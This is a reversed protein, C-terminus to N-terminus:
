ITHIGERTIIQFLCFLSTVGYSFPALKEQVRPAVWITSKAMENYATDPTGTSSRARRELASLYAKSSGQVTRCSESLIQM